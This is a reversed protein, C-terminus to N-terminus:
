QDCLTSGWVYPGIFLRVCIKQDTLAVAPALERSNGVCIYEDPLVVRIDFANIRWWEWHGVDCQGSPTAKASARLAEGDCYSYKFRDSSSGEPFCIRKAASAINGDNSAEAVGPKREASAAASSVSGVALLALLATLLLAIRQPKTRMNPEKKRRSWTM